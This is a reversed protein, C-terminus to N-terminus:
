VCSTCLTHAWCHIVDCRLLQSTSRLLQSTSRLLQSTSRLLQSTVSFCSAARSQLQGNFIQKPENGLLLCAPLCAHVSHTVDCSTVPNPVATETHRHTFVVVDHDTTTQFVITKFTCTCTSLDNIYMYMYMYIPVPYIYMYLTCTDQCLMHVVAESTSRALKCSNVTRFSRTWCTVALALLCM